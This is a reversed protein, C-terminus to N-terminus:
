YSVYLLNFAKTKFNRVFESDDILTDLNQYDPDNSNLLFVFFIIPRTSLKVLFLVTIESQLKAISSVRLM